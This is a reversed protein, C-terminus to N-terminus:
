IDKIIARLKGLCEHKKKRAMGESRYDMNSAIERMRMDSAWMTLVSRCKEDLRTLASRLQDLRDSMNELISPESSLEPRSDEDVLVMKTKQRKMWEYKIVTFIYAEPKNRLEFSPRYCQKIFTMVGHILLDDVDTDNGKNNYLYSRVTGRLQKSTYLEKIVTNRSEINSRVKNVINQYEM